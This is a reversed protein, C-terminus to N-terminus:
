NALDANGEVLDIGQLHEGDGWKVIVGTTSGEVQMVRVVQLTANEIYWPRKKPGTSTDPSIEYGRDQFLHQLLFGLWAGHGVVLVVLEKENEIKSQNDLILLSDWWNFIRNVFDSESEVDPPHPVGPHWRKGQLAAGM